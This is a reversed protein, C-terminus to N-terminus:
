LDLSRRGFENYILGPRGMARNILLQQVTKAFFTSKIESGSLAKGSAEPFRGPLRGPPKGCSLGGSFEIGCSSGGSLGVVRLKGGILEVGGFELNSPWQSEWTGSGDITPSGEETTLIRWLNFIRLVGESNM